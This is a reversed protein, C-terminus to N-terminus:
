QGLNGPSFTTGVIKIKSIRSIVDNPVEIFVSKEVKFPLAEEPLQDIRMRTGEIWYILEDSDLSVLSEFIRVGGFGVVSVSSSRRSYDDSEQSFWFDIVNDSSDIFVAREGSMKSSDLFSIVNKIVRDRYPKGKIAEFATRFRDYWKPNFTARFNDFYIRTYGSRESPLARPSFTTDYGVKSLDLFLRLLEKEVAERSTRLQSASSELDAGDISM